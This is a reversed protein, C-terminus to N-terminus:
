SDISVSLEEAWCGLSLGLTGSEDEFQVLYFEVDPYEEYHGTNILVGRTGAKVVLAGEAYGPIEGDSFLDAAAFVMDGPQIQAIDM